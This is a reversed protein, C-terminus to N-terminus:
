ENEMSKELIDHSKGTAHKERTRIPEFERTMRYVNWGCDFSKLAREGDCHFFVDDSENM